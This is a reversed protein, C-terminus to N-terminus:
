GRNELLAQFDPSCVLKHKIHGLVSLDGSRGETRISVLEQLFSCTTGLAVDLSVNGLILQVRGSRRVLMRGVLGEQLDRLSCSNEEHSEEKTETQQLVSQGDESQVETKVPRVDTTPPQGPLSDPLQMFLLEEGKCQKWAELLQPLESSEPLPPAKCASEVKKTETVDPPEEKVKVAPATGDTSPNECQEEDTECKKKITGGLEEKFIWGSVVLPLQVPYSRGDSRLCPDDLFNDRELQRLIEKTEEETERKEKKINIIPSPGSNPTERADDYAGRRKAMMEAPGQEFISHSQIVEPRGRGRGRGDRGRGREFDKKDRKPGENNKQEEKVKRGIINPTFTKKKVGGLTLDRSRMSPLRGPSISAPLRRGMLMGRGAAGPTSARSSAGADRPDPAAM